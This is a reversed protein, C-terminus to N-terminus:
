MKPAIADGPLPGEPHLATQFRRMGALWRDRDTAKREAYTAVEPHPLVLFRENRIAELCLEAVEAPELVGDGSAVGGDLERELGEVNDPSNTVINTRVAQPCLVSVRIGQHHHSVSLWEALSVAAAKTISYSMSGIQTLLGAASATNLLYGEGQAIMSPVVARAAYIHAMCHVEWMAQISENPDELGASTVYGANSVFLGIPGHANETEDVMRQIAAEDRVDIAVGTGGIEAAVRNAETGNLDAVVVHRAGAVQAARAIAEGIGSGGGTVVVVKNDLEM